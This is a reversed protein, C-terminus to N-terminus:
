TILVSTYPNQEPVIRPITPNSFPLDNKEVSASHRDVIQGSGFISIYSGKRYKSSLAVM